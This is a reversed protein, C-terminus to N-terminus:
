AARPPTAPGGGLGLRPAIENDVTVLAAAIAMHMDLYRYTGLRGAFIVNPEDAARARYAELRQLDGATRVPYYPEDGAESRRSFERMIVTSGDLRAREPHLHAFEHIRTYPVSADAYNMVATGQHDAVPLTEVELDLTRWDLAGEAYDFFADIPGTYVVLQDPRIEGRVDFFDTELAVDVLPSAEVMRDFWAAYGDLPLGQFPDKFYGNEFTFRVPLRTIISPDLERPDVQWQKQTYGRVFADYMPRGILSIAKEELNEPRRGGLEAAQQAVLDRAEEPSMARGFFSCITGMNIPMSYVRGDHNTYVTHRYDNFATFQQVYDIVRSNSTHFIHSGYRHVEIGSEPDIYTAANGGLAARRDIVVVSKGLDNAVREAVTLGTLGAGVVVVDYSQLDEM